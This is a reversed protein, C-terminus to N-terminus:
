TVFHGQRVFEFMPSEDGEVQKVCTECDHFDRLTPKLSIGLSAIGQNRGSEVWRKGVVSVFPDRTEVLAINPCLYSVSWGDHRLFLIARPRPPPM